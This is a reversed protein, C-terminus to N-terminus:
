AIGADARWRLYDGVLYFSGAVVGLECKGTEHLWEFGESLAEFSRANFGLPAAIASLEEGARSRPNSLTVAGIEQILGQLSALAGEADKDKMMGVVARVRSGSYQTKLTEALVRFSAPNHAVDLLVPPRGRLLQQRGPIILDRLRERVVEDKLAPRVLKAACIAVAANDRQHLGRMGLALSEIRRECDVYHFREGEANIWGFDREFLLGTARRERIMREYVNLAAEGQRAVIARSNPKIIGAKDSAIKELTDGLIDTHDYDVLTLLATTGELVNTADWTGGLGCEVVHYEPALERACWLYFLWVTEFYTLRIEPAICLAERIEGFGRMWLADELLSGNLRVREKVSVLHPSSFSLVGDGDALLAELYHLTSGKGKTGAIHLCNRLKLPLTLRAAAARSPELKLQARDGGLPFTQEYNILSNLYQEVAPFNLFQV